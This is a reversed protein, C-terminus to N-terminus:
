SVAALVCYKWVVTVAHLLKSQGHNGSNKIDGRRIYFCKIIFNIDCGFIFPNILAEGSNQLSGNFRINSFIPIQGWNRGWNRTAFASDRM